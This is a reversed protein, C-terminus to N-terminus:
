SAAAASPAVTTHAAVSRYHQREHHQSIGRTSVREDRSGRQKRQKAPRRELGVCGLQKNVRDVAAFILREHHHSKRERQQLLRLVISKAVPFWPARTMDCKHVSLGLPSPRRRKLWEVFVMRDLGVRDDM